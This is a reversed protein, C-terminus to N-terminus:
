ISYSILYWWYLVAPRVLCYTFNSQSCRRLYSSPLLSLNYLLQTGFLINYPLSVHDTLFSFSTASWRASILPWQLSSLSLNHISSMVNTSGLVPQSPISMHQLFAIIIPHIFTHMVMYIQHNFLMNRGTIQSVLDTQNILSQHQQEPKVIRWGVTIMSWKHITKAYWNQPQAIGVVYSSVINRGNIEHLITVYKCHVQLLLLM